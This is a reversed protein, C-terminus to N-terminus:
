LTLALYPHFIAVGCWPLVAEPAPPRYGLSSHPLGQGALAVLGHLLHELLEKLLGLSLVGVVPNMSALQGGQWSTLHNALGSRSFARGPHRSVVRTTV